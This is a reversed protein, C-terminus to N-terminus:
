PGLIKDLLEQEKDQSLQQVALSKQIKLQEQMLKYAEAPSLQDMWAAKPKIVGPGNFIDSGAAPWVGLRPNKTPKPDSIPTALEGIRHDLAEQAHKTSAELHAIKDVNSAITEATSRITKLVNVVRDQDTVSLRELCALVELPSLNLTTAKFRAFGEPTADLSPTDHENSPGTNSENDSM